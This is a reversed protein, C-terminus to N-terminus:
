SYYGSVWFYANAYGTQAYIEIIRNSDVEVLMTLPAYALLAVARNLSSGNKRAGLAQTGSINEMLIEVTTTGAPIIASIDWDEWTNNSSPNHASGAATDLETYDFGGGIISGGTGINMEGLITPNNLIPNDYFNDQRVKEKLTEKPLTPTFLEIAEEIPKITEKSKVPEVEVIPTEKPTGTIEKPEEATKESRTDM